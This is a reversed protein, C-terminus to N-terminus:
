AAPKAPDDDRRDTEKWLSHPLLRRLEDAFGERYVPDSFHFTIEHRGAKWDKEKTGGWPIQNNGTRQSYKSLARLCNLVALDDTHITISFKHDKHTTM